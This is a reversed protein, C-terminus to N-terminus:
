QILLLKVVYFRAVYSKVYNYIICIITYIIFPYIIDKSIFFLLGNETKQGKLISSFLCFPLFQETKTFSKKYLIETRLISKWFCPMKQRKAKNELIYNEM